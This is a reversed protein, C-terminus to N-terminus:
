RILFYLAYLHQRLLPLPNAFGSTTALSRSLAHFAGQSTVRFVRDDLGNRAGIRWVSPPLPNAIRRGPMRPGITLRTGSTANRTALGTGQSLYVIKQSIESSKERSTPWPVTSLIKYSVARPPGRIACQCLQGGGRLIKPFKPFFKPTLQGPPGRLHFRFASRQHIHQGFWYM